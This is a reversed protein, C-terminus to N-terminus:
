RELVSFDTLITAKAKATVRKGAAGKKVRAGVAIRIAYGLNQNLSAKRANGKVSIDQSQIYTKYRTLWHDDAELTRCTTDIIRPDFDGTTSLEIAKLAADRSLARYLGLDTRAVDSMFDSAQAHADVIDKALQTVEMNKSAAEKTLAGIVDSSFSLSLKMSQPM